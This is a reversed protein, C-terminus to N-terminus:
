LEELDGSTEPIELCSLDDDGSESIGRYSVARILWWDTCVLSPTVYFSVCHPLASHTCNLWTSGGDTLLATQVEQGELCPGPGPEWDYKLAGERRWAALSM